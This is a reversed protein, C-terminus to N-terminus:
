FRETVELITVQGEGSEFNFDSNLNWFTKQHNQPPTKGNYMKQIKEMSM